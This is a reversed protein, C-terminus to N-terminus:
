TTGMSTGRLNAAGRVYVFKLDQPLKDTNILLLIRICLNLSNPVKMEHGSLLAVYKWGMRRAAEAPFGATLDETTTFLASAIDDVHVENAEVLRKLLDQTAEFISEKTNADATTAGRIGHVRTM